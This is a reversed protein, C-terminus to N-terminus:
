FHQLEGAGGAPSLLGLRACGASLARSSRANRNDIRFFWDQSVKWTELNRSSGSGRGQKVPIEPREEEGM